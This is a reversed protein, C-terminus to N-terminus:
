LSVKEIKSYFILIINWNLEAIATHFRIILKSIFIFVNKVWILHSGRTMLHVQINHDVQMLEKLVM